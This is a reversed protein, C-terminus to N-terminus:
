VKCKVSHAESVSSDSRCTHREKCFGVRITYRGIFKYISCQNYAHSYNAIIIQSDSLVLSGCVDSERLQVVQLKVM